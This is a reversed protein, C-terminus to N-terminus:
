SLPLRSLVDKLLREGTSLGSKALEGLVEAASAVLEAGGPPHVPGRARDHESEFGQMPAAEPDPVTSTARPAASRARPKSPTKRSPTPKASRPQAARPEAAARAEPQSTKAAATAERAATRRATSRQPRTRPLNALVSATEPPDSPRGNSESPVSM